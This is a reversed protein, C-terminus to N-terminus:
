PGPAPRDPSPGVPANERARLTAGGYAWGGHGNKKEDKGDGDNVRQVTAVEKGKKVGKKGKSDSEQETAM